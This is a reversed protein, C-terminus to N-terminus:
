LRISSVIHVYIFMCPMIYDWFWVVTASTRKDLSAIIGELEFVDYDTTVVVVWFVLRQALM